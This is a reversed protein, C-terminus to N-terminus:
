PLRVPTKSFIWFGNLAIRELAARQAPNLGYWRLDLLERARRRARVIHPLEELLMPARARITEMRAAKRRANLFHADSGHRTLVAVMGSRTPTYRLFVLDSATVADGFTEALAEIAIRKGNAETERSDACIRFM